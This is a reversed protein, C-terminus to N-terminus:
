DVKKRTGRRDACTDNRCFPDVSHLFPYGMGMIEHFAGKNDIGSGGSAKEVWRRCCAEKWYPYRFHGPRKFLAVEHANGVLLAGVDTESAAFVGGVIESLKDSHLIAAGGYM